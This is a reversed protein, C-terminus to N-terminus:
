TACSFPNAKTDNTSFQRSAKKPNHLKGIKGQKRGYNQKKTRKTPRKLKAFTFKRRRTQRM